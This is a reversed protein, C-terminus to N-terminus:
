RSGMSWCWIECAAIRELAECQFRVMQSVDRVAVFFINAENQLLDPVSTATSAEIQAREIRQVDAPVDLVNEPFHWATVTYSPLSVVGGSNEALADVEEAILVAAGLWCAVSSISLFVQSVSTM